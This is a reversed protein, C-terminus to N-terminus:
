IFGLKWYNYYIFQEATAAEPKIWPNEFPNFVTRLGAVESWYIKSHICM